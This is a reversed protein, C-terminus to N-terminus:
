RCFSFEFVYCEGRYNRRWINVPSNEVRHFRFRRLLVAMVVRIEFEAFRKGICNRPGMGFPMYTDPDWQARGEPMFREPDFREPEPFYNSDHHMAYIPMGVMEGEAFPIGEVTTSQTCERFARPIIPFLRLTEYMVAELYPMHAIHEYTIEEEEGAVDIVEQRLRDQMDPHLALLYIMFHMTSGTTDYGATLLVFSQGLLEMKSITKKLRGSQQQSSWYGEHTIDADEISGPAATSYDVPTEEADLLLQFLDNPREGDSNKKRQEYIRSLMGDFFLQPPQSIFDIGTFYEITHVLVPCLATIPCPFLLLIANWGCVLGNKCFLVTRWSNAGEFTNKMHKLFMAEDTNGMESHGPKLDAYVDADLSFGARAIVGMALRGFLEKLPVRNDQCNEGIYHEEIVACFSQTCVNFTPILGKLMGTTFAPTVLARVRKWDAGRMIFLSNRATSGKTIPSDTDFMIPQIAHNGGTQRGSMSVLHNQFSSAKKSCVERLFKASKTVYEHRDFM